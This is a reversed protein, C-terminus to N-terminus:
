SARGRSARCMSACRRPPSGRARRLAPSRASPPARPALAAGAARRRRRVQRHVEAARRIENYNITHIRERERLEEQTERQAGSNWDAHTYACEQGCPFVGSPFLEAVPITPPFTQARAGEAAPTSPGWPKIGRIETSWEECAVGGGGGAGGDAGGDAAGAGKKKKKKSKKKKKAGDAAAPAGEAEEVGEEEAEEAEPAPEACEPTDAM